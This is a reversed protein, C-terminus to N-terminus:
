IRVKISCFMWIENFALLLKNECYRVTRERVKANKLYQIKASAAPNGQRSKKNLEYEILLM